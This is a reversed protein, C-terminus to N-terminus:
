KKCPPENIATSRSSNFFLLRRESRSVVSAALRAQVGQVLLLFEAALLNAKIERKGPWSM